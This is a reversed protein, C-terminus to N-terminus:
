ILFGDGYQLEGDQLRLTLARLALFAACSLCYRFVMLANLESPSAVGHSSTMFSISVFCGCDGERLRGSFGNGAFSV